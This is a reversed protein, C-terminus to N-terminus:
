LSYRGTVSVTGTKIAALVGAIHKRPLNDARTAVLNLIELLDDRADRMNPDSQAPPVPTMGEKEAIAAAESRAAARKQQAADAAAPYDKTPGTGTVTTTM